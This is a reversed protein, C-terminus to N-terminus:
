WNKMLFIGIAVVVIAGLLEGGIAAFIMGIIGIVLMIGAFALISKVYDGATPKIENNSPRSVTATRNTSSTRNNTSSGGIYSSRGASASSTYSSRSTSTSSTYSSRSSSSRYSSSAGLFVDDYDDPDLGANEIAERRDDEDMEALEDPDLGELYLDDEPDDLDDDEEYIGTKNMYDLFDQDHFYDDDDYDDWGM